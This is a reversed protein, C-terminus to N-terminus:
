ASAFAPPARSGLASLLQGGRASSREVFVATAILGLVLVTLLAVASLPPYSRRDLFRDIEQARAVAPASRVVGTEFELALMRSGTSASDSPNEGSSNSWGPSCVVAVSLLLVCFRAITLRRQLTDM